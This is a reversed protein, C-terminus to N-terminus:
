LRWVPNSSTRAPTESHSHLDEHPDPCQPWRLRQQLGLAGTCTTPMHILPAARKVSAGQPCARAPRSHGEGLGKGPLHNKSRALRKLTTQSLEV